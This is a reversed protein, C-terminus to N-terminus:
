SELARAFKTKSPFLSFPEETRPKPYLGQFDINIIEAREGQMEEILHQRLERVQDDSPLRPISINKEKLAKALESDERVEVVFVNYSHDPSSPYIFYDGAGYLSRQESFHDNVSQM